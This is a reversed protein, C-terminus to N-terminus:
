GLSRYNEVVQEVGLFAEEFDDREAGFQAYQHVYAGASFMGRSRGVATELVGLVAQMPVSLLFFMFFLNTNM